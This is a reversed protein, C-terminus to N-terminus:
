ASWSRSPAAAEVKAWQALDVALKNLTTTKGAGPRGLLVARKVQGFATLIDSFDRSAMPQPTISSRRLHCLPALDDWAGRLPDGEARAKIRALGRLPAYLDAKRQIDALLRDLYAHEDERGPLACLSNLLRPLDIYDPHPNAGLFDERIVELLRTLGHRGKDAGGYALLKAVCNEAFVAASGGTEILHRPDHRLGKFAADLVTQRLNPHDTFFALLLRSARRAVDAEDFPPPAEAM